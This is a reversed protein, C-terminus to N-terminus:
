VMWDWRGRGSGSARSCFIPSRSAMRAPCGASVLSPPPPPPPPPPPSLPPYPPPLLPTPSPPPPLPPPPSPPPPPNSPTPPLPPPSPPPPPPLSPPPPPPLRTSPPPPRHARTLAPCPFGIWQRVSGVPERRSRDSRLWKFRPPDDLGQCDRATGAVCPTGAKDHDESQNERKSRRHGGVEGKQELLAARHEGRRDLDAMRQAAGDTQKAGPPEQDAPDHRDHGPTQVDARERERRQRDHLRDEGAPEDEEGHEGLAEEAKVESPSLPDADRDGRGPQHDDPQGAAAGVVRSRAESLPRIATSPAIKAIPTASTLTEVRRWTSGRTSPSSRPAAAPASNPTESTAILHSM